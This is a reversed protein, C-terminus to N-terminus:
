LETYNNNIDYTKVSANDLACVLIGNYNMACRIAENNTDITFRVLFNNLNLIRGESHYDV